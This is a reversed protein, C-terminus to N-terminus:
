HRAAAGRQGPPSLQGRPDRRDHPVPWPQHRRGPRRRAPRCTPPRTLPALMPSAPLSGSRRRWTRGALLRAVDPLTPKTRAICLTGDEIEVGDLEGRAACAAVCRLREHLLSALAALSREPDTAEALATMAMVVPETPLLHDEFARHDPSGAVWMGARRLRDRLTALVTTEYLRRDLVPGAFIM